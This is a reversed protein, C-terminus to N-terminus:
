LKIDRFSSGKSDFGKQKGMLASLQAGIKLTSLDHFNGATLSDYIWLKFTDIAATFEEQTTAEELAIHMTALGMRKSKEENGNLQDIKTAANKTIYACDLATVDEDGRATVMLTQIFETDETNNVNDIYWQKNM